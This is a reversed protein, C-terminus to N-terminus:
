EAAETSIEAAAEISAESTEPALEAAIEDAVEVSAEASVTLENVDGALGSGAKFRVVKKAAVEVPAGTKPNRCTRAARDAIKFSGFGVLKVEGGKALEATISATIANLIASAQVQTISAKTAIAKVLEKKNM